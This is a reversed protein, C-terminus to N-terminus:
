GPGSGLGSGLGFGLGVWRVRGRLCCCTSHSSAALLWSPAARRAGPSLTRPLTLSHGGTCASTRSTEACARATELRAPREGVSVDSLVSGAIYLQERPVGSQAIQGLRPELTHTASSDAPRLNSGHSTVARAFGLQNGGEPSTFFSRFGVSLAQVRLLLEHTRMAGRTCPTHKAHAHRAVHRKAQLTLREATADDYIQVGFTVAPPLLGVIPSAPTLPSPLSAVALLSSALERRGLALGVAMKARVPAFHASVKM